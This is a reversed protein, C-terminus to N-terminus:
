VAIVGALHQDLESNAIHCLDKALEAYVINNVEKPLAKRIDGLMVPAAAIILRDFSNRQYHEKLHQALAGAFHLKRHRQPDTPAEMSHRGSGASDFTRGPRDSNIEGTKTNDCTFTMGDIDQFGHGPGTHCVIRAQTGNAILIWTRVPKM